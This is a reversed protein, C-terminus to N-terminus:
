ILSQNKPVKVVITGAIKDHWSQKEPDWGAWFFGIFLAMASLYSSLHRVLAVSFDMPAGDVRVGKIGMIIGGITTQKWSWMGIQYVAWGAVGLVIIQSLAAAVFFILADLVTAGLRLWFGARPLDLDAQSPPRLATSEASPSKMAAPVAPTGAEKQLADFLALLAAGFAAASVASLVAFGVGPVMYLINIALTGSIVAGATQGLFKLGTQRAIQRGAYFSIATRGVLFAAAAFLFLLPIIPIGLVSVLFATAIPGLLSLGLAGTLFASAPRNELVEVCLAVPKPLLLALILYVSLFLAAAAWLWGVKPPFPRAWFLGDTIWARLGSFKQSWETDGMLGGLSIATRDGGIRAQPDIDLTGGLAVADGKIDANPGLRVSGMAVVDEDVDDNVYASGGLVVVSGDVPGQVDADAAFVVVEEVTEGPKVIIDKGFSVIDKAEPKDKKESEASLPIALMLVATLIHNM